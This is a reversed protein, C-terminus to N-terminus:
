GRPIFEWTLFSRSESAKSPRPRWWEGTVVERPNMSSWRSSWRPTIRRSCVRYFSGMRKDSYGRGNALAKQATGTKGAAEYGSLRAAQGTGGEEMVTKLIQDRHDGDGSFHGAPDSKPQNEKLVNGNPELVAKVAYPKMLVGGNALAALAAPSSCRPPRFERGSVSTPWDSKLGIRPAALFGAVEGPLDVGTKGGFGFNKLYRHLKNKGLKRGVKSAGINSSVKIVEGLSLWGYKHVDHVTRGGVM